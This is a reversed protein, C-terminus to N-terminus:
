KVPVVSLRSLFPQFFLDESSQWFLQPVSTLRRPLENWVHAAAVPFARDGVTSLQTRRDILSSSSAEPHWRIALQVTFM